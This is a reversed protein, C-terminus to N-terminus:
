SRCAYSARDENETRSYLPDADPCHLALIIFLGTQLHFRRQRGTVRSRDFRGTKIITPTVGFHAASFIAFFSAGIASILPILRQAGRLAPLRHTGAGHRRTIFRDYGRCDSVLRGAVISFPHTQPLGDGAYACNCPLADPLAASCSLKVTRAFNIM